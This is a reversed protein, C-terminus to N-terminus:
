TKKSNKVKKSKTYGARKITGPGGNAFGNGNGMSTAIAGATTTEGLGGFADVEKNRAMKAYQKSQAAQKQMTPMQAQIQDIVKQLKPTDPDEPFNAVQQEYASLMKAMFNHMKTGVDLKALGNAIQEMNDLAGRMDGQKVKQLGQQASSALQNLDTVNETTKKGFKARLKANPKANKMTNAVANKTYDPDIGAAKSLKDADKKTQAMTDMYGKNAGVMVEIPRPALMSKMKLHKAQKSLAADRKTVPTPINEVIQYIKM